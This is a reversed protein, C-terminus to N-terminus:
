RRWQFAKESPEWSERSKGGVVSVEADKAQEEEDGGWGWHVVSVEERRDLRVGSIM